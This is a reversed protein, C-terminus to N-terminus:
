DCLHLHLEIKISQKRLFSDFYRGFPLASACCLLHTTRTNSQLIKWVPMFDGMLRQGNTNAHIQM